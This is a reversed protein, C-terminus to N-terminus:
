RANSSGLSSRDAVEALFGRVADALATPATYVLTHAVEPLEILRGHQTRQVLSRAWDARCIPDREGYVILVPVRIQPLRDEIADQLSYRFTKLVRVYGAMRYEPWTLPGLEPPNFKGNQRWRVAQKAWTREEPPSTPGQLIAQAVLDPHRVALNAIVQCGQSNGLLPVPGLGVARMWAALGDALEPMTLAGDPHGSRGFGPLDPVYVRSDRALEEAVPMMYRHSLGLGHVLVIPATGGRSIKAHVRVAYAETWRSEFAQESPSM